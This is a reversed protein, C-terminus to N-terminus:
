LLSTCAEEGQELAITRTKVFDEIALCLAALHKCSGRPRKGAPCTCIGRPDILQISLTYKDYETEM